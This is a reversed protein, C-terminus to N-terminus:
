RARRGAVMSREAPLRSADYSLAPGTPLTGRILRANHTIKAVIRAWSKEFETAPPCRLFADVADTMEAESQSRQGLSELVLARQAHYPAYGPRLRLAQDADALAEAPRNQVRRLISRNFWPTAYAPAREMVQAYCAEARPVQDLCEYAAAMLCFVSPSASRVHRQAGRAADLAQEYRCEQYYLWGLEEFADAQGIPGLPNRHTTATRQELERIRRTHDSAVATSCLPDELVLECAVSPDRALAARVTLLKNADLRYSVAIPEGAGGITAPLRGVSLVKAASDAAVVIEVENRLGQPVVLGDYAAFSGDAPYPLETGAPILPAFGDARTLLGLTEQAIPRLLPRGLGHLFFSHLAAGRAVASMTREADPFRLLAARPFFKQLAEAVQPILSSGGALLVGDIESAPLGSRELADTVPAFISLVPNLETGRPFLFDPDLFPALVSDLQAPSLSPRDLLYTKLQALAANQFAPISVVIPLHEVTRQERLV